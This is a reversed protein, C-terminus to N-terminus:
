AAREGALHRRASEVLAASERDAMRSAGIKLWGDTVEKVQGALDSTGALARLEDLAEAKRAEIAVRVYGEAWDGMDPGDPGRVAEGVAVALPMWASRAAASFGTRYFEGVKSEFVAFGKDSVRSVYAAEDRLCREAAAIFLPRFTRAVDVPTTPMRSPPKPAGAQLTPVMAGQVLYVKGSGDEIPNMNKLRRWEDANIVGNQRQINLANAEDISRGRLYADILFEPYHAIRDEPLFVQTLLAKEWRVCWPRMTSSVYDLGQEEINSFTARRLDGIKHPAVRNIRAMVETQNAQSEIFQAKDNEVSATEWKAGEELLMPRHKNSMGGGGRASGGREEMQAKGRAYAEDTLSGPTSIFGGPTADNGFFAAGYQELALALGISESHTEISSLGLCGDLSFAKLHFMRDRRLTTYPLGTTEDREGYPLTVDYYLEGEFRRLSVRNAPIPWLAVVQGRGNRVLEAYANRHMMAWAQLMELFQVADQEENPQDHLLGYLYFGPDRERRADDIRRYTILPLTALDEAVNRVGAFYSPAELATQDSVTIGSLTPRIGFWGATGHSALSLGQVVWTRVAHWARRLSRVM